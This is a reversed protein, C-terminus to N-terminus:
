KYHLCIKHIVQQLQPFTQAEWKPGSNGPWKKKQANFWITHIGMSQASLIDHEPHDGIHICEGPKLDAETLLAKFMRTDPKAAGVLEASYFYDIYPELGTENIDANGNTLAAIQFDTKLEGIVKLADNFYCVQNRAEFFANFASEAHFLAQERTHINEAFLRRLIEKRTFTLNHVQEPHDNVIEKRLELYRGNLAREAILPHHRTLWNQMAQQAAHVAKQGDWLTDDLDFSILKIPNESSKKKM